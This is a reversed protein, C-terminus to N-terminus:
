EQTSEGGVMSAVLMMQDQEWASRCPSPLNHLAVAMGKERSADLHYVELRVKNM